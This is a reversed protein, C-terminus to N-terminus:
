RGPEGVLIQCGICKNDTGHKSCEEGMEREKTVRIVNPVDRIIFSRM